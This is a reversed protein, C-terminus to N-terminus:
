REGHHEQESGIQRTKEGSAKVGSQELRFMESLETQQSISAGDRIHEVRIARSMIQDAQEQRSPDAQESRIQGNNRQVKMNYM